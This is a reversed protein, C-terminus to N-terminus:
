QPENELKEPDGENQPGGNLRNRIEKVLESVSRKSSKWVVMFYIGLIIGLLMAVMFFTNMIQWRVQTTCQLAM